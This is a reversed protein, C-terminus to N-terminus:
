NARSMSRKMERDMEAITTDLDQNDTLYAELHRMFIEEMEAFNSPSPVPIATAASAYFLESNVPYATWKETTAFRRWSPISVNSDALEQQYVEGTLERLFEWALDPNESSKTISVGGIGFVTSSATNRPFNAVGVRELAAAIGNVPWHGATVMAVQGAAFKDDQYGTMAFSAAAGDVHILDFMFQLSERFAPDTVTVETWTSDLYGTSNTLLWPQIGFNGGPFAFGFQTTNGSDDKVTTARAAAAFDDWSWDDAPYDIGAADFMDLNYYVVINNWETPFYNLENSRRSRMGAM